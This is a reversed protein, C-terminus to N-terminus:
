PINCTKKKTVNAYQAIKLTLCWLQLPVFRKDNWFTSWFFPSFVLSLSHTTKHKLVKYERYSEKWRKEQSKRERWVEGKTGEYRKGEGTKWIIRRTRRMRQQRGGRKRRGGEGECWKKTGRRLSVLRGEAGRSRDWSFSSSCRATCWRLLTWM